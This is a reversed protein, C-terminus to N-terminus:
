YNLKVIQIEELVMTDPLNRDSILSFPNEDCDSTNCEIFEFHSKDEIGSLCIDKFSNCVSHEPSMGEYKSPYQVSRKILNDEAKQEEDLDLQNIKFSLEEISNYKGIKDKQLYTM